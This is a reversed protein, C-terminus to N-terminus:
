CIDEPIHRQTTNDGDEPYSIYWSNPPQLYPKWGSSPLLLNPPEKSKCEPSPEYNQGRVWEGMKGGSATTCSSYIYGCLFTLRLSFKPKGKTSFHTEKKGSRFLPWGTMSGLDWVWLVSLDFHWGWSASSPLYHTTAHKSSTLWMEHRGPEPTWGPSTM